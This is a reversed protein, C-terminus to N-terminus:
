PSGGRTSGTDSHARAPAERPTEAARKGAIRTAVPLYLLSAAWAAGMTVLGTEETFFDFTERYQEFTALTRSSVRLEPHTGRPYEQARAVFDQLAVQFQPNGHRDVCRTCKGDDDTDVCCCEGPTGVCGTDRSGYRTGNIETVPGLECPDGPIWLGENRSCNTWENPCIVHGGYQYICALMERYAWYEHQHWLNWEFIGWSPIADGSGDALAREGLSAWVEPSIWDYRTVGVKCYENVATELPDCRQYRASTSGPESLIQHHFIMPRPFGSEHIWRCQRRGAEAVHWIRFETWTEWWPHGAHGVVGPDRPADVQDWSTFSTGCAANFEALTWNARAWARYQAITGPNYDFYSTYGGPNQDEFGHYNLHIESDTSFGVLLDPHEQWWANIVGLAQKINRERFHEWESDPWFSWFRDNPGPNFHIPHCADQQDWQCNSVNERMAQIVPHRSCCQGWNGGNMHFLVPTDTQASLELTYQLRTPDYSGNSYLDNTYWCSVSRGIKVFGTGTYADGGVAAKLYALQNAGYELDAGQWEWIPLIYFTNTHNPTVGAPPAQLTPTLPAPVREARLAPPVVVLPVLLLGFAVVFGVQWKVAKGRANRGLKPAHSAQPAGPANSAPSGHADQITSTLFLVAGLDGALTGVYWGGGFFLGATLALTSFLYSLCLIFQWRPSPGERLKRSAVLFLAVFPGGLGPILIFLVLELDDLRLPAPFADFVSNQLQFGLNWFIQAFVASSGALVMLAGLGRLVPWRNSTANPPM